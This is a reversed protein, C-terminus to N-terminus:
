QLKDLHAHLPALHVLGTHVLIRTAGMGNQVDKQLLYPNLLLRSTLSDLLTLMLGLFTSIVRDLFAM